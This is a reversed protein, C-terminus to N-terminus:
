NLEKYVKGAVRMAIKGTTLYIFRPFGTVVVSADGGGDKFLLLM